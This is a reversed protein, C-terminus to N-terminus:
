RTNLADAPTDDPGVVKVNILQIIAKRIEEKTLATCFILLDHYAPQIDVPDTPAPRNLLEEFYEVWRERQGEERVISM